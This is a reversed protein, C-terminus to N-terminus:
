QNYAIQSIPQHRLLTNPAGSTCRNREPKPQIKNYLTYLRVYLKQCLSAYYIFADSLGKPYARILCM